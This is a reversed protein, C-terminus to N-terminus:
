KFILDIVSNDIPYAMGSDPDCRGLKVSRNMAAVIVNNVFLPYTLSQSKKSKADTTTMRSVLYDVADPTIVKSLLENPPTKADAMLHNKFKFALYAKTNTNLPSLEVIECRQVVERVEPANESLKLKLEPQGILIIALLKKFGDEMENFRKLHKITPISLGHTEEIALVHKNGSDASAKLLEYVQKSKAQMTRKPTQLPALKAIIADMLDSAKLTKGKKDNDEMGLVFPEIPIISTGKLKELVAKRVTSKGSGSEAILAIFGGFKAAALLSEEAYMVDPTKFVSDLGQMENDFPNASLRFARKAEPSLSQKRLLISMTNEQVLEPTFLTESVSVGKTSLATTIADVIVARAISKPFTQKNCILSITAASVGVQDALWAQSLNNQQLIAQLMM